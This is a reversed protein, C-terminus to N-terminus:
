SSLSPFGVAVTLVVAFTVPMWWQNSLHSVMTHRTM